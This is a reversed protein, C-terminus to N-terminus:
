HWVPSAHFCVGLKKNLLLWRKTFLPQLGIENSHFWSRAHEPIMKTFVLLLLLYREDLNLKLHNQM